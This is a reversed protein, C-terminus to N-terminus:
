NNNKNCLSCLGEYLITVKHIKLLYKQELQKINDQYENDIDIIRKCSNCYLHHHPKNNGDYHFAEENTAIRVVEGQQVLKNINRYVTAQGIKSDMKSVEQCIEQITPHTKSKHIIDLIIEKQHTNRTKM